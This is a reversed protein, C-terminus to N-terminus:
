QSQAKKLIARARQPATFNDFIVGDMLGIAIELAEILEARSPSPESSPVTQTSTIVKEIKEQWENSLQHNIYRDGPEVFDRLDYILAKLAENQARAQALQDELVLQMNPNPETM